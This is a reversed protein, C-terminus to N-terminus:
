RQRSLLSLIDPIQRVSNWITLIVIQQPQVLYAIRYGRHIRERLDPREFDPIMRGFQPNELISQVEAYLQRVLKGAHEPEQKELAIHEYIAELDDAAQAHWILRQAM